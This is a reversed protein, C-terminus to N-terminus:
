HLLLLHMAASAQMLLASHGASTGIDGQDSESDGPDHDPESDSTNSEPTPPQAQVVAQAPIDLAPPAPLAQNAGSTTSRPAHHVVDGHQKLTRHVLFLCLISGLILTLMAVRTVITQWLGLHASDESSGNTRTEHYFSSLFTTISLALTWWSSVESMSLLVYINWVTSVEADITELLHHAYHVDKADNNDLHHPFLGLNVVICAFSAAFTLYASVRTALDSRDAVQLTGLAFAAMCSALRYHFTWQKIKEELYREWSKGLEAVSPPLSAAEICLRAQELVPKLQSANILPRRLLVITTYIESLLAPAILILLSAVSFVGDLIDEASLSSGDQTDPVHSPSDGTSVVASLEVATQSELQSTFTRRLHSRHPSGRFKLTPVTETATSSAEVIEAM